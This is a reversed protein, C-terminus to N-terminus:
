PWEMIPTPRNRRQPTTKPRDKEEPEAAMRDNVHIRELSATTVYSAENNVLSLRSYRTVVNTKATRGKLASPVKVSELALIGGLVFVAYTSTDDDSVATGERIIIYHEVTKATREDKCAETLLPVTIGARIGLTCDLHPKYTEGM